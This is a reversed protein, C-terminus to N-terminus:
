IYSRLLNYDDVYWFKANNCPSWKVYNPLITVACHSKKSCIISASSHVSPLRTNIFNLVWVCVKFLCMLSLVYFVTCFVCLVCLFSASLCTQKCVFVLSIATEVFVPPQKNNVLPNGHWYALPLLFSSYSSSSSSSPLSVRLSLSLSHYVSFLCLSCRQQYSCLLTAAM